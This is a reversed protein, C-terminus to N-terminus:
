GVEHCYSIEGTSSCVSCCYYNGGVEDCSLEWKGQECARYFAEANLSNLFLGGSIVILLALCNTIRKKM